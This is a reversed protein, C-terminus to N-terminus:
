GVVDEHRSQRRRVAATDRVRPQFIFFTCEWSSSMLSQNRKKEKNKILELDGTVYQNCPSLEAM